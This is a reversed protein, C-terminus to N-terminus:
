TIWLYRWAQNGMSPNPKFETGWRISDQDNKTAM